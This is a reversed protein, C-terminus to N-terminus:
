ENVFGPIENLKEIDFMMSSAKDSGHQAVFAKLRDERRGVATVKLGQAILHDAMGRGIGSTAGIILVHKYPFSMTTSSNSVKDSQLHKLQQILAERRIGKHNLM